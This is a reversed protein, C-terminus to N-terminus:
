AVAAEKLKKEERKGIFRIRFITFIIYLYHFWVVSLLVILTYVMWLPANTDGLGRHVIKEPILPKGWSVGGHTEVNGYTEDDEIKAVVMLYGASDGPLTVPFDVNVLGDALTGEGVKLLSFTRPM